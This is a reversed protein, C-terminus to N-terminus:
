GRIFLLLLSTLWSAAGFAVLGAALLTVARVAPSRPTLRIRDPVGSRTFVEADDQGALARAQEASLRAAGVRGDDGFWRAVRGEPTDDLLVSTLKWTGDLARMVMAAMLLLVGAPLAAWTLAELIADLTDM